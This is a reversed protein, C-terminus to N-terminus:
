EKFCKKQVVRLQEADSGFGGSILWQNVSQLLM